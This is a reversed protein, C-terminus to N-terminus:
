VIVFLQLFTGVARMRMERLVQTTADYATFFSVSYATRGYDEQGRKRQRMIHNMNNYCLRVVYMTINDYATRILMSASECRM